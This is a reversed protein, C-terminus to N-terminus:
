GRGRPAGHCDQIHGHLAQRHEAEQQKRDQPQHVEHGDNIHSYALLDVALMSVAGAQAEAKKETEKGCKLTLEFSYRM